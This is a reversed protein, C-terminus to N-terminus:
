KGSPLDSPRFTSKVDVSRIGGESCEIEFRGTFGQRLQETIHLIVNRTGESLQKREPTKPLSM